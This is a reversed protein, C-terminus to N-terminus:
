PTAENDSLSRGARGCAMCLLRKGRQEAKTKRYMDRGCAECFRVTNQRMDDAWAMPTTNAYRWCAKRGAETWRYRPLPWNTGNDTNYREWWETNDPDIEAFGSQVLVDLQAQAFWQRSM